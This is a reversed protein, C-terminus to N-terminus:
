LDTPTDIDRIVGDDKLEIKLVNSQHAQIIPKAGCDGQLKGIEEFYARDFIVPHGTNGEVTPLVIPHTRRNAKYALILAKLSHVTVFPMDALIIMAAHLNNQTAIANSLSHAMGLASDPALFYSVNSLHVQDQLKKKYNSDDARLVVLVSDVLNAVNGITTELVSTKGNILARRKDGGFRQSTGAALIIAGIM